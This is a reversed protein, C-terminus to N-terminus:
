EPANDANGGSVILLVNLETISSHTKIQKDQKTENMAM